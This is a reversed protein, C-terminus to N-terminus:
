ESKEEELWDPTGGLSESQVTKVLKQHFSSFTGSLFYIVAPILLLAGGVALSLAWELTVLESGTAVDQLAYLQMLVALVLLIVGKAIFAKRFFSFTLLPTLFVALSRIVIIATTFPYRSLYQPNLYQYPSALNIPLPDVVAELLYALLFLGIILVLLYEKKM